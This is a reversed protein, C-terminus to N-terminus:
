KKKVLTIIAKIEEISIQKMLYAAILYIIGSIIIVVAAETYVSFSLINKLGAILFLILISLIITKIWHMIPIHVPIYRKLTITSLVSMLFYSTGTAFAAGTIGFIPILIANLIINIIAGTLTLKAVIEPKGIGSFVSFNITAIIFFVTGILLIRLSSSAGMYDPTFLISLILDSFAFLVLAVPLLILLSYRYFFSIGGALKETLKKASLESTLPFVITSLAASIYIFINSIPIAANYIGSEKTTYFATIMITDTYQLILGGISVFVVSYGFKTIDSFLKYDMKQNIVWFDSMLNKKILIIFLIIMIISTLLFSYAIYTVDKGISFFIAVFLLPLAQKIFQFLSYLWHKQYAAFISTVLADYSFFMFVIALFKILEVSGPTKVYETAIFGSLLITIIALVMGIITISLAAFLISSKLKGHEKKVLFEPIYKMLASTIGFDRFIFILYLIAYISYFLGYESVTLNKAIVVRFFYGAITSLITMSFIIIFGSFIHKTYNKEYKETVLDNGEM